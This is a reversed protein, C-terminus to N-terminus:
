TLVLGLSTWAVYVGFGALMAVSAYAVWHIASAARTGLWRFAYAYAVSYLVLSLFERRHRAAGLLYLAPHRQGAV